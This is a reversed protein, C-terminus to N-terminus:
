WLNIHSYAYYIIKGIYTLLMYSMIEQVLMMPVMTFLMGIIMNKIDPESLNDEKKMLEFESKSMKYSDYYSYAKYGLSACVLSKVSYTIYNPAIGGGYNSYGYM